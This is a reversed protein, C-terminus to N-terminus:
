VSRTCYWRSKAQSLDEYAGQGASIEGGAGGALSPVVGVGRGNGRMVSSFESTFNRLGPSGSRLRGLLIVLASKLPQTCSRPRYKHVCNSGFYVGSSAM